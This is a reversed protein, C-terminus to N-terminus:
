LGLGGVLEREIPAFIALLGAARGGTVWPHRGFFVFDPEIIPREDRDLEDHDSTPNDRKHHAQHAYFIVRLDVDGPVVRSVAGRMAIRKAASLTEESFFPKWIQRQVDDQPLSDQVKSLIILPVDRLERLVLSESTGAGRMSGRVGEM